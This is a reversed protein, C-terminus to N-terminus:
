LMGQAINRENILLQRKLEVWTGHSQGMFGGIGSRSVVRHCPIIGPYPNNRCAQAIARPGSNLKHALESYTMVQGLPIETLAKWVIRSYVTGQKLLNLDLHNEDPKLLCRKLKLASESDSETLQEALPQWSADVIVDGVWTLILEAGLLLISQRRQKGTIGTQWHIQIAM